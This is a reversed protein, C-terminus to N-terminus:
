RKIQLMPEMRSVQVMVEMNVQDIIEMSVQVVMMEMRVQVM